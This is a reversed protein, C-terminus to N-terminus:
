MSVVIYCIRYLILGAFIGAATGFCTAKVIEKNNDINQM